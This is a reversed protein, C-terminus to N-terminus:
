LTSAVLVATALVQAGLIWQLGHRRRPASPAVVAGLLAAVGLLCGLLGAAQGLDAVLVESRSMTRDGGFGGPGFAIALGLFVFDIAALALSAAVLGVLTGTRKASHDDQV